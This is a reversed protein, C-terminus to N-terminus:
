PRTSALGARLAAAVDRLSPDAADAAVRDLDARAAGADGSRVFLTARAFRARAYGPSLALAKDLEAHAAAYREQRMDVVALDYYAVAYSPSAAVIASFDARAAELDGSRLAVLGSQYRARLSLPAIALLKTAAAKAAPVDSALLAVTVLNAAAAAFGSDRRLADTFASEAARYEGLQGLALGLNYHATSGKPEPPDLAVIRAFEAAAARWDSRANAALGREFREAVERDRARALLSAEATTRPAPTPLGYSQAGAGAANLAVLLAALAGARFTM